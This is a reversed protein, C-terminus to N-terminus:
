SIKKYLVETSPWLMCCGKASFEFDFVMKKNIYNYIFIRGDRGLSALYHDFPCVALDVVEGAHCKYIRKPPQPDDVTTLDIM